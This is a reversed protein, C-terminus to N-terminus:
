SNVLDTANGAECLAQRSGGVDGIGSVYGLGLNESHRVSLDGEEWCQKGRIARAEVDLKELEEEVCWLVFWNSKM